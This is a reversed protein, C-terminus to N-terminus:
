LLTVESCEIADVFDLIKLSVKRKRELRKKEFSLLLLFCLTFNEGCM